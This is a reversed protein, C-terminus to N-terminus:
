TELYERRVRGQPTVFQSWLDFVGLTMCYTEMLFNNFAILKTQLQWSHRANTLPVITTIIPQIGRDVCVNVLQAYDKQMTAM